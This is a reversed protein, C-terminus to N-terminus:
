RTLAAQAPPAAPVLYVAGKAQNTDVIWALGGPQWSLLYDGTIRLPKLMSPPAPLPLEQAQLSELDVDWLHNTQTGALVAKRGNTALVITGELGTLGSALPRSSTGSGVSPLLSLAGAARDFILADQSKPNFAMGGLDSINELLQPGSSALLYVAGNATGELLTVGDDALALFQAAAPLDGSAMDRIVQPSNPLGALIQLHGEATSYLAAGTGAPNFAVINPQAIGGSIPVLAGPAADQFAIVGVSAGDTREVIASKQGPAFDIGTVGTPLALPSGQTSAGPIGNMVTIQTKGAASAFGLIPAQMAQTGSSETQGSQSIQSSAPIGGGGCGFNLASLVISMLLLAETRVDRCM